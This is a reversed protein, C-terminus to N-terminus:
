ANAIPNQSNKDLMGTATQDHHFIGIRSCTTIQFFKEVAQNRLIGVVKHVISFTGIIHRRMNAHHQSARAFRNRNDAAFHLQAGPLSNKDEFMAM